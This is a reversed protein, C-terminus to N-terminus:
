QSRHDSDVMGWWCFLCGIPHRKQQHFLFTSESARACRTHPAFVSRPLTKLAHVYIFSSAFSISCVHLSSGGGIWWVWDPTKKTPPILVHIRFGTRMAYAACFRKPSANKPRPCLNLKLNLLDFLRASFQWRWDMVGLRTDKKTPPILVHIRFNTRMAYSSCFLLKGWKLRSM